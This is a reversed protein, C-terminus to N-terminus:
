VCLRSTMEVSRCRASFDQLTGPTGIDVGGTVNNGMKRARHGRDPVVQCVRSRLTM